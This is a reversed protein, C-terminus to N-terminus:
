EKNLYNEIIEKEIFTKQVGNIEQYDEHGKGLILIMDGLRAEQLVFEIAKQRDEIIKYKGGVSKVGLVIDNIIKDTAEYRSNDSTIISYTAYKGSIKGMEYRRHIDRNGGCGFVTILRKYPYHQMTKLINEMSIANHAYDIYVYVHPYTKVYESRGKISLNELTKKIQVTSIGLYECVAICLIANLVNFKGPFSILFHLGRYDFSMKLGQENVYEIHEIPSKIRSLSYYYCKAKTSKKMEQAYFDDHNIFCVESRKLLEKKYHKYEEFNEHENKGIHDPSLNTFCGIDFTFGDVRHYMLGVSTVELIVYQCGKLVMQRLYYQIEYSEPTTNKTEYHQDLIYIGNTGIMGAKYGNDRLTHYIMMASTTKGKTGTIGITTLQSAPHDFFACSLLALTMRANDVEIYTIGKKFPIKLHEGVIVIAGLDIAENIYNNGNHYTGDISVFLSQNKVRKSYYALDEIEVDLDGYKLVFDIGVFLKALKM